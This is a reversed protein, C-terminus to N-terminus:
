TSTRAKSAVTYQVSTLVVLLSMSLVYRTGEKGAVIDKLKDKRKSISSLFGSIQVCAWVCVCVSSCM